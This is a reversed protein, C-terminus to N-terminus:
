NEGSCIGVVPLSLYVLSGTWNVVVVGWLRVARKIRTEREIERSTKLALTLATQLCLWSIHTAQQTIASSPAMYRVAIIWGLTDHATVWGLRETEEGISEVSQPSVCSSGSWVTASAIKLISRKPFQTHSHGFYGKDFPPPPPPLLLPIPRNARSIITGNQPTKWYKEKPMIAYKAQSISNAILTWVQNAVTFPPTPHNWWFHCYDLAARQNNNIWAALSHRRCCLGLPVDFRPFCCGPQHHCYSAVVSQHSSPTAPNALQSARDSQELSM